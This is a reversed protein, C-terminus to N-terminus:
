DVQQELPSIPLLMQYVMTEGRSPITLRALIVSAPGHYSAWARAGPGPFDRGLIRLSADIETHMLWESEEDLTWKLNNEIDM